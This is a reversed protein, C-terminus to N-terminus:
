DKITVSYSSIGNNDEIINNVNWKVSTMTQMGSSTVIDYVSYEMPDYEPRSYTFM